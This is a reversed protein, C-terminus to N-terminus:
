LCVSKKEIRGSIVFWSCTFLEPNELDFLYLFGGQFLPWDKRNLGVTYNRLRANPELLLIRAAPCPPLHLIADLLSWSGMAAQGCLSLLLLVGLIFVDM